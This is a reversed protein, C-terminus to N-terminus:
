WNARCYADDDEGANISDGDVNDGQLTSVLGFLKWFHVTGLDDLRVCIICDLLMFENVNLPILSCPFGDSVSKKRFKM